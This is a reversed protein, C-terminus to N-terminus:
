LVSSIISKSLEHLASSCRLELSTFLDQEAEVSLGKSAHSTQLRKADFPSDTSASCFKTVLRSNLHEPLDHMCQCVHWQDHNTTSVALVDGCNLLANKSDGSMESNLKGTYLHCTQVLISVKPNVHATQRSCSLM